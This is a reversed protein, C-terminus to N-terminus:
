EMIISNVPQYKHLLPIVDKNFYSMDKGVMFSAHGMPYEKYYVVTKLEDKLWQCDIPDGLEDETGVFM